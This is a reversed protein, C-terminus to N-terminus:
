VRFLPRGEPGRASPFVGPHGGPLGSARSLRLPCLVGQLLAVPFRVRVSLTQRLSGSLVASFTEGSFVCVGCVCGQSRLQSRWVDLRLHRTLEFVPRRASPVTCPPAPSIMQTQYVSWKWGPTVTGPHFGGRRQLFRKISVMELSSIGGRFCFWAGPSPRPPLSDSAGSLGRDAGPRFHGTQILM